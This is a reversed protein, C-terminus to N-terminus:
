LQNIIKFIYENIILLLLTRYCPKQDRKFLLYRLWNIHDYKALIIM